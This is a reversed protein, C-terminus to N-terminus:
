LFALQVVKRFLKCACRQHSCLVVDDVEHFSEHVVLCHSFEESLRTRATEFQGDTFSDPMRNKSEHSGVGIHEGDIVFLLKIGQNISTIVNSM